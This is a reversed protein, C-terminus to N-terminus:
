STRCRQRRGGRRLRRRRARDGRHLAGARPEVGVGAGHVRRQAGGLTRRLVDAMACGRRRRTGTAPCTSWAPSSGATRTPGCSCGCAAAGPWPSCGSRRTTCGSSARASCSRARCGPSCRSCRSARLLVGAPVRRPPDRRAGPARRGPHGARERVARAGDADRPVPAGRRATGEGDVTRVALYYPHVPRLPSPASARTIVLVDRPGDQRRLDSDVHPAFKAAIASGSRLVGLGSDPDALLEGGDGARYYRYGLFTFHDDALWRLLEAVDAPPTGDRRRGAPGRLADAVERARQLM